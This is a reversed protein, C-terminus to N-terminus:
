PNPLDLALRALDWCTNQVPDSADSLNALVAVALREEPLIVLITSAGSQEGDHLYYPGLESAEGYFWGYGYLFVAQDGQRGPVDPAVFMLARTDPKVLTGEMFAIAFRALDQATSQMGGGPYKVSLDDPWDNVFSNEPGRRYLSAKNPVADGKIELSTSDMGAPKWVNERMYIDFSQDSASELIAGLLTYGYTTYAYSSGPPFLLPDNQFADLAALLSDYHKMTRNELRKYHRIGSTHNLLHRVTIAGEAKEPFSALYVQVPVDLAIRGQEVLRMVATATIAKSISAIRYVTSATAPIKQELDALGAGGSFVIEGNLAVAASVGVLAQDRQVDRLLEAARTDLSEARAICTLLTCLILTPIEVFYRVAVM